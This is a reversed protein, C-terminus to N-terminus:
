VITHIIVKVDLSEIFKSGIKTGSGDDIEVVAVIDFVIIETRTGYHYLSGHVEALTAYEFGESYYKLVM